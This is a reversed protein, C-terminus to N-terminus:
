IMRLEAEFLQRIMSASQYRRKNSMYMTNSGCIDGYREYNYKYFLEVSQASGIDILSGHWDAEREQMRMFKKWLGIKNLTELKLNTKSYILVKLIKEEIYHVHKIHGAMEHLLVGQQIRPDFALFDPRLILSHGEGRVSLKGFFTKSINIHREISAFSDMNDPRIVVKLRLIKLENCAIIIMDRLHSPLVFSDSPMQIDYSGSQDKEQVDRLITTVEQLEKQTIGWKEMVSSIVACRKNYLWERVYQCVTYNNKALSKVFVDFTAHSSDAYVIHGDYSFSIQRSWGWPYFPIVFFLVPFLIILRINM